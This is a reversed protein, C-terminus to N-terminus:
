DGQDFRGRASRKWRHGPVAAMQEGDLFEGESFDFFDRVEAERAVTYDQNVTGQQEVVQRPSYLRTIERFRDQGQFARVQDIEERLSGIDASETAM